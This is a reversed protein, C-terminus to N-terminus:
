SKVIKILRELDTIALEGCHCSIIHQTYFTQYKLLSKVFEENSVELSPVLDELSDGANDGINLIHDIRDYVSISDTTHGPTYFLELGDEKLIMAQDFTLDANRKVLNDQTFAQAKAVLEEWQNEIRQHCLTHAIIKSAKLHDNGMIHDWHHHTNIIYTEKRTPETLKLISSVFRQDAGTDIVYNRHQGLIVQIQLIWDGYDEQLLYTRESLKITKM